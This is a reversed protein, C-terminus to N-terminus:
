LVLGPFVKGSGFVVRVVVAEEVTVGMGPPGSSWTVELSLESKPTRPPM